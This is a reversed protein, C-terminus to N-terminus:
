YKALEWAERPRVIFYGGREDRLFRPLDNERAMFFREPKEPGSRNAFEVQVTWENLRAEDTGIWGNVIVVEDRTETEFRAWVSESARKSLRSIQRGRWWLYSSCWATIGVLLAALPAYAVPQLPQALMWILMADFAITLLPLYFFPSRM